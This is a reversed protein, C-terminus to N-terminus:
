PMKEAPGSSGTVDPSEKMKGLVENMSGTRYGTLDLTVFSFGLARFEETIRSRVTEQAMRGILGPLVEIRALWGGPISHIRVRAQGCGMDDLVEEAKGAMELGPASLRDGYAFRSALCAASPKNWSPLGLEKSLARIESKGLGAEMLPSRVKLERVARLGPRYDGTDDTNSGEAVVPFGQKAAEELFTSFLTKKCHYCRDPPNNGIGEIGLVDVHCFVQRVGMSRCLERAQAEERRPFFAGLETLAIVCETGLADVAARLLLSSDVGGSFAVAVRETEALVRKLEEYKKRLLDDM